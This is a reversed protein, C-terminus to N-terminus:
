CVNDMGGNCRARKQCDADEQLRDDAHWSEWRNTYWLATVTIDHLSLCGPKVRLRDIIGQKVAASVGLNDLYRGVYMGHAVGANQCGTSDAHWLQRQCMVM